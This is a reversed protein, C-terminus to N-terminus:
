SGRTKSKREVQGLTGAYIEALESAWKPGDFDPLMCETLITLWKLIAENLIEILYLNILGAEEDAKLWFAGAINPHTYFCLFNYAGLGDNGYADKIRSYTRQDKLSGYKNIDGTKFVKWKEAHTDAAKLDIQIKQQANYYEKSETANRQLYAADAVCELVLRVSAATQYVRYKMNFDSLIHYINQQIMYNLGMLSKYYDNPEEISKFQIELHEGLRDFVKATKHRYEEAINSEKARNM